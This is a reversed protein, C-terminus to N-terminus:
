WNPLPPMQRKHMSREHMNEILTREPDPITEGSLFRDIVEYTTGMEAEDTQGEWLGASPPRQIIQRPVGLQKAWEYIERKLLKGLPLLDVGGDGYKTFYGTYMEAANDTGVVLYNLTNAATYLTSMRLRARLNADSMRRIDDNLAAYPDLVNMVENMMIDHIKTFDIVHHTLGAAEAVAIGDEVDKSQSSIPLILGLSHNPFARKILNAAVASDIGGSVGVALGEAHAETVKFRLWEVTRDIRPDHKEKM